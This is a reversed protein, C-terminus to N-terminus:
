NQTSQKRRYSDDTINIITSHHVLRDIAAVAMINDPFIQDWEKFPQNSTIILSHSEYRQAILEFLVSTEAEDKKVYGIDDLILVNFRALKNLSDTLKYDRRAQQLKQVLTTTPTFFVRAGKEILRHGIASALHTKGVGSPGFIMLNSAQQVWDLTNALATIQAANVSKSAEFDFTDLTKGFPLASEKLHREIRKQQRSTLERNALVTLYEAYDWKEQQAQLSVEEWQSYMSSLHLQKLLLPLTAQNHM